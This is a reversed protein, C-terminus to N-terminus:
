DEESKIVIDFIVYSLPGLIIAFIFALLKPSKISEVRMTKDMLALLGLVAWMVVILFVIM